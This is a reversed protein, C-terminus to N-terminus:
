KKVNYLVLNINVNGGSDKALVQFVHLGLVSTDVGGTCSIGGSNSVCSSANNKNPAQSQTCSAVTLYPGVSSTSPNKSTPPNSCTYSASVSQNQKYTTVKPSTVKIGPPLEGSTAYTPVWCSGGPRATGKVTGTPDGSVSFSTIQNSHFLPANPHNPDITCPHGPVGGDGKLWGPYPGITSNLLNFGLNDSKQFVFDSGLDAYFNAQDCSSGTLGPCTLEFLVASAHGQGDANQFVFCQTHPFSRQVLQECAQESILIPQVQVVASTLGGPPPTLLANYNYGTNGDGVGGNFSLVAPTTTDVTGSEAQPTFTWNLIDQNEFFGGTSATFGVYATGGTSLSLLSGLNVSVGNPFLDTGDLIVHLSGTCESCSPPTYSITVKHIATDAFNTTVSSALTSNSGSNGGCLFGHHSTNPGTGCSQVAVHSASGGEPILPDWSNHYSDFEIAISDPIGEGTSPNISTDQDGYGLTGGNGGTFGIAGAGSNQIVFAIGDAPPASPNTFQFQFSTSFGNQVPQQTTFWASGVRSYTNTTLRLVTPGTENTTVFTPKNISDAGNLTLCDQNVSFDPTFNPSAPCAAWAANSGGVVLGAIVGVMLFRSIAATKM